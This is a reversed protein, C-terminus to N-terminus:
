KEEKKAKEKKSEMIKKYEKNIDDTWKFSKDIDKKVEDFREKDDERVKKYMENIKEEFKHDRYTAM